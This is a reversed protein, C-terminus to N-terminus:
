TSRSAIQQATQIARPEYELARFTQLWAVTSGILLLALMFFTRWFLSLGVKRQAELSAPATELPAPSTFDIQTEIQTNANLGTEGPTM